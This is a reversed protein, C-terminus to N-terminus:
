IQVVAVLDRDFRNRERGAGGSRGGAAPASCNEANRQPCQEGRQAAGRQEPESQQECLHAASEARRELQRREVRREGFFQRGEFLMRHEVSSRSNCRWDTRSGIQRALLHDLVHRRDSLLIRVADGFEDLQPQRLLTISDGITFKLSTGWSRGSGDNAIACSKPELETSTEPGSFAAMRIMVSPRSSEAAIKLNKRCSSTSRITRSIAFIEVTGTSFRSATMVSAYWRAIARLYMLSPPM